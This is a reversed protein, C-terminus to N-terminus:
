MEGVRRMMERYPKGCGRDDGVEPLSSHSASLECLDAAVQRAGAPDAVMYEYHIIRSISPLKEALVDIMENYWSLHNRISDIDYAYSNGVEYKQMYIRLLNDDFDRKIFIAKVNPFAGTIRALDHIRAPHTSTFVVASGARSALEKLYIERCMADLRPPLVEFMRSTLFGASQLTNRVADEVIPNEYGRKVGDVSAILAEMTTKGSRSPGLIFLSQTAPETRRESYINITKKKLQSLNERQVAALEVANKQHKTQLRRNAATVQQWAEAHRGARDFVCARIFTAWNELRAANNNDRLMKELESLIDITVYSAPLNILEFFIVPSYFGRKLLREFTEAAKAYKGLRSCCTAFRVAADPSNNDVELVKRYVEAASDYACQKFYVEGLTFLISPEQPEVSRAKELTDAAMETADLELYVGSLATLARWNKPNLMAARVLPGIAEQYQGRDAYLLGLTYLAGFYDPYQRILTECIARAQDTQGQRRLQEAKELQRFTDRM